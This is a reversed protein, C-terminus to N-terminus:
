AAPTEIQAALAALIADITDADPAQRVAAEAQFCAADLSGAAYRWLSNLNAFVQAVEYATPATIGVESMVLPYDADTPAPDSLYARAEEAKAMYLMDQGPLDTIYALRARGRLVTIEALGNRKWAELEAANDRPDFWQRAFFDFEAWPGPRPPFERWDNILYDWFHSDDTVGPVAEKLSEGAVAMAAFSEPSCIGSRLIQGTGPDIAVYPIQKSENSSM